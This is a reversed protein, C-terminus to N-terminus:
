PIAYPSLGDSIQQYANFAFWAQKQYNTPYRLRASYRCQYDLQAYDKQLGARMYTTIMRAVFLDLQNQDYATIANPNDWEAAPRTHAHGKTCGYILIGVVLLIVMGKWSPASSKRAFEARDSIGTHSMLYAARITPANQNPPQHKLGRRDPTIQVALGTGPASLMARPGRKGINLTAGHGGISLSTTGKPLAGDKRPILSQSFNMWLGPIGFLRMRKRFRPRFRM